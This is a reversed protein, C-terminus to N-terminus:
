DSQAKTDDAAGSDGGIINFRAKQEDNLSDYFRTLAPKLVTVAESLANLRKVVADLRNSVTEPMDYPCSSSLNSAATKAASQLADFAPEQHANPKIEDKIRQVPLKALSAAEDTCLDALDKGPAASLAVGANRYRSRGGLSALRERQKDDLSNDLSTLPGRITDIAQVMAHLRKSVASLRGVPTLPVESPCSAALLGDAKTAATQLDNLITVQQDTPNIARRIKDIPLDTMGPALGNCTDQTNAEQEAASQRHRRHYYGYYNTAQPPAGYIEFFSAPEDALPGPWFISAFLYDAGYGFFPDYLDDPWFAFSLVDGYFFPWFVPGAWYGWGSGWANWGEGWHGGAWHDWQGMGGFANRNFGHPAMGHIGHFHALREATVAHNISANAHLDPTPHSQLTSSHQAMFSRHDFHAAGFHRGGLHRTGFHMGGFRHIHGAFHAGGFHGGFHHGGLHGGGFHGAFHGGGHPGGHGVPRAFAEPLQGTCFSLALASSLGLTLAIFKLRRDRM